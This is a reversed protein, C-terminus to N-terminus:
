FDYKYLVIRFFYFFSAMELAIKMYKLHVLHQNSKMDPIISKNSADNSNEITTATTMEIDQDSRELM